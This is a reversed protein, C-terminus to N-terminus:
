REIEAKLTWGQPLARALRGTEQAIEVPSADWAQNWDPVDHGDQDTASWSVSLSLETM